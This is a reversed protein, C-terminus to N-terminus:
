RTKRDYDNRLISLMIADHRKGDFSYYYERMIGEGEFGVSKLGKISPYNDSQTKACIRHFNKKTFLYSLVLKLVEKFYGKNWYDPSIGYGIEADLKRWDINIIGFTGIIKDTGKLRIFWYHNNEHENREILKQLYKWTDELAKQPEFELYKYLLSKKSYEHMEALGKKDIETLKLRDSILEPFM